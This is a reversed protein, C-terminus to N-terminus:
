KRFVAEAPSKSILNWHHIKQSSDRLILEDSYSFPGCLHDAKKKKKKAKKLISIESM